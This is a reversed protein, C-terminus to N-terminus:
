DDKNMDEHGTLYARGRLITYERGCEECTKVLQIDWHAYVYGSYEHEQGCECTFGKPLEAESM